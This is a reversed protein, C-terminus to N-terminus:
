RSVKFEHSFLDERPITPIRGLWLISVLVYIFNSLFICGYDRWNCVKLCLSKLILKVM